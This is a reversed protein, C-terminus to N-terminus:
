VAFDCSVKALLSSAVQNSWHDSEPFLDLSSEGRHLATLSIKVLTNNAFIGSAHPKLTLLSTRRSCIPNSMVYAILRPMQVVLFM